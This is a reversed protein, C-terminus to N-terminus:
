MFSNLRAWAASLKRAAIEIVLKALLLVRSFRRRELTLAYFAYEHLSLTRQRNGGDQFDTTDKL